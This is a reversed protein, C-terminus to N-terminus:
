KKKVWREGNYEWNDAETPGIPTKALYETLLIARSKLDKLLNLTNETHQNPIGHEIFLIIEDITSIPIVAEMRSLKSPKLNIVSVIPQVVTDLINIITISIDM